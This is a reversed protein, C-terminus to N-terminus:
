RTVPRWLEMTVLRDWMHFPVEAVLRHSTPFNVGAARLLSGVEPNRGGDRMAEALAPKRIVVWAAQLRAVPVSGLVVQAAADSAPYGSIIWSAGPARAGLILPIGPMDFFALVDDNPALGAAAAHVRLNHVDSALSTDLMLTGLAGLDCAAFRGSADVPSRWPKHALQILTTALSAAAVWPLFKVFLRLRGECACLRLVPLVAAFSWAVATLGALTWYPFNGTGFATAMPLIALFILMALDVVSDRLRQGRRVMLVPACVFCAVFLPEVLDNSARPWEPVGRVIFRLATELHVSLLAACAIAPAWNRRRAAVVGAIAAVTWAYFQNQAAQHVFTFSERLARELIGDYITIHALVKRGNEISAFPNGWVLAVLLGACCGALVAGSWLLLRGCALRKTRPALMIIIGAGLGAILAGSSAKPLMSLGVLVGGAFIWRRKDSACASHAIMAAALVALLTILWNYGPSRLDFGYHGLALTAGLGSLSWAVGRSVHDRLALRAVGSGLMAGAGMLMLAGSIRFLVVNGGVALLLPRTVIWHFRVASLQDQPFLADQISFAEDTLDLRFRFDWGLVCLGAAAICWLAVSATSSSRRM